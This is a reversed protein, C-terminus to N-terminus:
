LSGYCSPDHYWRSLQGSTELIRSQIGGPPAGNAFAHDFLNRHGVIVIRKEPRSLLMQFFAQIEGDPGNWWKEENFEAWNDNVDRYKDMLHWALEGPIYGHDSANRIVFEGNERIMRSSKDKLRIDPVIDIGETGFALSASEIARATPATYIIEARRDDEDGFAKRFLPHEKMSLAQKRGRNGVPPDNEGPAEGSLAKMFYLIKEGKQAPRGECLKLDFKECIVGYGGAKSMIYHHLIECKKSFRESFHNSKEAHFIPLDNPGKLKEVSGSGGKSYGNEWFSGILNFTPWQCASMNRQGDLVPTINLIDEDIGAQADFGATCSSIPPCWRQSLHDKEGIPFVYVRILKPWSKVTMRVGMNNFGCKLEGVYIDGDKLKQLGAPALYDADHEKPKPKSDIQQEEELQSPKEAARSGLQVQMLGVADLAGNALSSALAALAVRFLM